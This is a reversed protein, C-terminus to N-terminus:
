ATPEYWSVQGIVDFFDPTTALSGCKKEVYNALNEPLIEIMTKSALKHMSNNKHHGRPLDGFMDWSLEYIRKIIKSMNEKFESCSLLAKLEELKEDPIKREWELKGRGEAIMTRLQTNADMFQQFTQPFGKVGVERVYMAFVILYFYREINSMIKEKLYAQWDDSSVDFTMKSEIICERINEVGTGRPPPSALDILKDVQAKAIKAKPYAELLEKIVDFEGMQMPNRDETIEIDIGPLGLKKKKLADLIDDPVIGRMRELEVGLQLEKVCAAIVISTTTRSIGAQCNFIVPCSASTSKLMAVIQDFNEEAPAKEQNMPIRLAEMKPVKEKLSDYIEQITTVGELKETLEENTAREEPHEGFQDKYYKFDDGRKKIEEAFEAELKLCEEPNNIELHFNIPNCNLGIDAAPNNPDRATFPKSNVYVVPEQRLNVWFVSKEDCYKKLVPELCKEFGEVTTQGTGFIPFGPLRRFNPAGETRPAGEALRDIGEFADTMAKLEAAPPAM